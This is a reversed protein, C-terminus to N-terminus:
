LYLRAFLGIFGTDTVYNGAYNRDSGTVLKALDNVQIELQLEPTVTAFAKLDIIPTYDTFFAETVTLQAGVNNDKSTVSASVYVEHENEEPLVDLWSASWGALVGFIGESLGYSVDTDLTQMDLIQILYLGTEANRFADEYVPQYIGQNFATNQFHMKANLVSNTFLPVSTDLLAFWSAEEHIEQPFQVFPYREQLYAYDAQASKMGFSFDFDINPVTYGVLVSFPVLVPINLKEEYIVGIDGSIFLKESIEYQIDTLFSVRHASKEDLSSYQYETGLNFDVNTFKKGFSFEARADSYTGNKQIDSASDKLLGLYRNAWEGGGLFSLRWQSPFFISFVLEGEIDTNASEYFLPSKNQLGTSGQEYSGELQLSYIDDSYVTAQGTLSTDNKTYGDSASHSGFGNQSFHSFNIAFPNKEDYQSIGIDALFYGPYGGAVLGELSMSTSEEKESAIAVDDEITERPLDLTLLFDTEVEPLIVTFDPISEEDITSEGAGIATSVDPLDIEQPVEDIIEQLFVIHICFFCVLVLFSKKLCM